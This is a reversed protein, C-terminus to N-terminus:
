SAEEKLPQRSGPVAASGAPQSASQLECTMFDVSKRVVSDDSVIRNHGLGDTLWLQAHNLIECVARGDSAPVYVDSTDHIVLAPKNIMRGIREFSLDHETCGHLREMVPYMREHAVSPIGLFRAFRSVVNRICFPPSILVLRDARAGHQVAIAAAAAGFSHAIIGHVPGIKGVVARVADAFDPLTTRQLRSAGHAPGDFAIVSCGQTLLPDVFKGLQSARGEWGHVLLVQPGATGWTTVQLTDDRWSLTSAQGRKMVAGEWRAAPFRRPSYFVTVAKMAARTPMVRGWVSFMTRLLKLQLKM